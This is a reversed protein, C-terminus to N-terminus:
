GLPRIQVRYRMAQTVSPPPPLRAEATVADLATRFAQDTAEVGTPVLECRSIRGDRGIWVRIDAVAQSIDPSLHRELLETLAQTTSAVYLRSPNRDGGGTGGPQGIVPAGGAYDQRVTGAAFASPGDGAQGEMKIPENAPRPVDIPQQERPQQQPQSEKPPEIKKEERPPPPPPRDPLITIRAVQRAAAPKASILSKLGMALAVILAIGVAGIAIRLGATKWPSPEDDLSDEALQM